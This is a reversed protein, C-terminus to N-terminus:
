IISREIESVDSQSFAIPLLFYPMGKDKAYQVMSKVAAMVKQNVNEEYFDKSICVAEIGADLCQDIFGVIDKQECNMETVVYKPLVRGANAKIYKRINKWITDFKDAGRVLAYTSRTGADISPEITLLGARLGESILESYKVANTYILGIARREILRGMIEEFADNLVPEGFGGWSYYFQKEFYGNNLAHNLLDRYDYEIAKVKNSVQCYRCSLNCKISIDIDVNTLLSQAPKDTTVYLEPCHICYTNLGDNAHDVFSRSISLLRDLSTKPDKGDALDPIWCCFSIGTPRLMMSTFKKCHYYVTDSYKRENELTALPHRHVGINGVVDAYRLSAYDVLENDELFIYHDRLRNKSLYNSIDKYHMSAVIIAIEDQRDKRKFIHEEIPVIPLSSCVGAKSSDLFGVIEIGPRGRRIEDYVKLGRSGAGYIMAKGAFDIDQVSRVFKM